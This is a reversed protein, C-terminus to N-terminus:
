CGTYDLKVAKTTGIWGLLAQEEVRYERGIKISPFGDTRMLAKAQKPSIKLVNQLDETTFINLINSRKRQHYQSWIGPVM